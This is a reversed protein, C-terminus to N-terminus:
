RSNVLLNDVSAGDARYQNLKEVGHGEPMQEGRGFAAFSTGEPGTSGDRVHELGAHTLEDENPPGMAGFEAASRPLM